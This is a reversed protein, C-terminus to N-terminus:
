EQVTPSKASCWTIYSRIVDSRLVEDNNEANEAADHLLSCGRKKDRAVGRGHIYRLGLNRQADAYGQEAAKQIWTSAMVEDKKINWVENGFHHALGMMYQAQADGNTADRRLSEGDMWPAGHGAQATLYFLFFCCICAIYKRM